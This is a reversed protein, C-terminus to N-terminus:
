FPQQPGFPFTVSGETALNEISPPLPFPAKDSDIIITVGSASTVVARLSSPPLGEPLEAEGPIAITYGPANMVIRPITQTGKTVFSLRIDGGLDIRDGGKGEQTAVHMEDLVTRLDLADRSQSPGLIVGGVGYRTLLERLVGSNTASPNTLIVLDITRDFFPLNKGLVEFLSPTKGGGILVEKGESTRVLIARGSEVPLFSISSQAHALGWERSLLFVIAVLALTGILFFRSVRSVPHFIICSFMMKNLHLFPIHFLSIVGLTPIVEQPADEAM